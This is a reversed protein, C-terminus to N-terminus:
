WAASGKVVKLRLLRHELEVEVVYIGPIWDQAPIMLTQPAQLPSAYVLQGVISYIRLAGTGTQPVDALLLDSFPNPYVRLVERALEETPVPCSIRMEDFWLKAGILAFPTCVFHDFNGSFVAQVNAGKHTMHTATFLANVYPVQEDATCYYLRVPAAPAWDYVDNDALNLRIPHMTDALIDSLYGPQLMQIGPFPLSDRLHTEPSARNLMRLILSDYPPRFMEGIEQYLNQYVYQHSASVFAIFFPNSFVPSNMLSDFLIGSVDYPGSCPASATVVFEGGHEQQMYRHTAMTTHGGQSYGLLFVQGNLRVQRRGCLIRAARMMDTVATAESRAHIYPHPHDLPTAGYGLLDPLVAVYGNAAFPVGIYHQNLKAKFDSLGEDYALSGHNYNVMPFACSSGVPLTVLGSALTMQDGRGNLTRYVIRHIEVQPYVVPFFSEPLSFLGYIALIASRDLTNVLSDEVLEGRTQSFFGEVRCILALFVLLYFRKM